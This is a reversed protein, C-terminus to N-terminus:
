ARMLCLLHKVLLLFANVIQYGILSASSSWGVLTQYSLKSELFIVDELFLMCLFTRKLQPVMSSGTNMLSHFSLVMEGWCLIVKGISIKLPLKWWKRGSPEMSFKSCWKQLGAPPAPCNLLLPVLRLFQQRKRTLHKQNWTTMPVKVPWWVRRQSVWNLRPLSQLQGRTFEGASASPLGAVFAGARLPERIHHHGWLYQPPHSKLRYPFLVCAFYFEFGLLTLVIEGPVTPPSALGDM